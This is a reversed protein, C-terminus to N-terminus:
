GAAERGAAERTQPRARQAGGGARLLARPAVAHSEEGATPPAVASRPAGVQSEAAVSRAESIELRATLTASHARLEAVIPAEDDGASNTAGAAADRPNRIPSPQRSRPPSPGARGQLVQLRAWTERESTVANEEQLLERELRQLRLQRIVHSVHELEDEDTKSLSSRQPLGSKRSTDKETKSPSPRQPVGNKRSTHSGATAPAMSHSTRMIHPTKFHEL